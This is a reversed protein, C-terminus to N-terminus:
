HVSNYQQLNELCQMYITQSDFSNRLIIPCLFYIFIEINLSVFFETCNRCHQNCRSEYLHHIATSQGMDFFYGLSFANHLEIEENLIHMM